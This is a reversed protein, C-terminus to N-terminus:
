MLDTDLSRSPGVYAARSANKEVSGKPAFPLYFPAERMIAVLIQFQTAEMHLCGRHRICSPSLPRCSRRARCDTTLCLGLADFPAMVPAAFDCKFQLGLVTKDRKEREDVDVLQLLGVFLSVVVDLFCAPNFM